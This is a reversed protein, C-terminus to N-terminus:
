GREADPVTHGTTSRMKMGDGGSHNGRDFQMSVTVTAVTYRDPAENAEAESGGEKEDQRASWM